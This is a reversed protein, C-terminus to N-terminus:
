RTLNQLSFFLFFFHLLTLYIWNYIEKTLEGNGIRITYSNQCSSMIKDELRSTLVMRLYQETILEEDM